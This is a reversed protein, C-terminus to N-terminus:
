KALAFGFSAFIKRAESDQLYRLFKGAEDKHASRSIVAAPYIVPTKLTGAPPFAIVKLGHTMADTAYVIGCDAAGERIQM